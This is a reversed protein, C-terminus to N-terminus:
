EENMHAYKPNFTHHWHHLLGEQNNRIITIGLRHTREWFEEDEKGWEKFNEDLKGLQSFVNKQMAFLGKASYLAWEGHHKSITAPKNKYLFFTVPFWARKNSTYQNCLQVINKPLSIDADCAFIIQTPAQEIARNFTYARTFAIPENSFVIKGPWKQAIAEKLNPIDTSNCDFVSLTILDPHEAQLLSSVVQKIYQSSRNHLGTCITIPQLQKKPFLAYYGMICLGKLDRLLTQAGMARQPSKFVYWLVYKFNNPVRSKIHKYLGQM